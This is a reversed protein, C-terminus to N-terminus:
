SHSIQHALTFAHSVVAFDQLFTLWVDQNYGLGGLNPRAHLKIGTLNEKKFHKLGLLWGSPQHSFASPSNETLTKM